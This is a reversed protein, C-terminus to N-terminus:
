ITGCRIIPPPAWPTPAAPVFNGDPRPPANTEPAPPPAHLEKVMEPTTFILMKAATDYTVTANDARTWEQTNPDSSPKPIWPTPADADMITKMEAPTFATKDKKSVRAGVEIDGHLFVILGYPGAVFVLTGFPTNPNAETFTQPRGYRKVCDGVVDGLNARAPVVLLLLVAVALRLM